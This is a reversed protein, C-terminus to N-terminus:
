ISAVMAEVELSAASIVLDVREFSASVVLGFGGVSWRATASRAM